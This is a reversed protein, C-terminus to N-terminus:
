VQESIRHIIRGKATSNMTQNVLEVVPRLIKAAARGLGLPIGPGWRRERFSRQDSNDSSPLDFSSSLLWHSFIGDFLHALKALYNFM